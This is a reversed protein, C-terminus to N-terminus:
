LDEVTFRLRREVVDTAVERLPRESAFARARLLLFADEVSIGLQVKVMGTAQHVQPIYSARSDELGLFSDGTVVLVQVCLECIRRPQADTEARAEALLHAWHDPDVM